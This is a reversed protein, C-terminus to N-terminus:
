GVSAAHVWLTQQTRYDPIHGKRESSPRGPLRERRLRKWILPSLAYLLASYGRRGFM